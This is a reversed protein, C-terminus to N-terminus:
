SRLTVNPPVGRAAARTTTLVSFDVRTTPKGVTDVARYAPLQEAFPGFRLGGRKLALFNEGNIWVMDVSGDRM